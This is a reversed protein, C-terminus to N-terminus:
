KKANLASQARITSRMLDHVADDDFDRECADQIGSILECLASHLREENPNASPTREQNKLTENMSEVLGAGLSGAVTTLTGIASIAQAINNATNNNMKFEM